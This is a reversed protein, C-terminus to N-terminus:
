ADSAGAAKTAVGSLLPRVIPPMARWGAEHMEEIELGSSRVLEGTARNCRCGEAFRQWPGALRDQWHALRPSGSRVHELFLLKGGPRLVRKIEQL